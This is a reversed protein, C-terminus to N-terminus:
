GQHTAVRVVLLHGSGVCSIFSTSSMFSRNQLGVHRSCIPRRRGDHCDLANREEDANPANCRSNTATRASQRETKNRAVEVLTGSHGINLHAIRYTRASHIALMARRVEHRDFAACRVSLCPQTTAAPALTAADQRKQAELSVLRERV